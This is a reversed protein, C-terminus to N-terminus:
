DDESAVAALEIGVGDIAGLSDVALNEVADSVLFRTEFQILPLVAYTGLIKREADRYLSDREEPDVTAQAADLLEDVESEDVGIVNEPSTSRFLPSLFQGASPADGVWGLLFLEADGEALFAAYDGRAHPRAVVPVGVDGLQRVIRLVLANNVPNEFYDLPLEPVDGDPFAKEVLSEAVAVDNTCVGSCANDSAGPVGAPILGGLSRVGADAAAAALAGRDVARVIAERFRADDFSFGRLNLALLTEALYPVTGPGRNVVPAQDPDGGIPGSALDINGEEFATTTGETDDFRTIEVSDVAAVGPTHDAFRELTLPTSSEDAVVEPVRFPGSGVPSAAPDAEDVLPAPLVGFAPHALVAPLEAYPLTLAVVVTADDPTSVGSLTTADGSRVANYGAVPLLQIALPSDTWPNVVRDLTAKVDASTVPTGDHFRTGDLLTFTFTTADDNSTWESALEPLPESTAPDLETLTDYVLDAVLVADPAVAQAPDLGGADLVGIRLVSSSVDDSAITESQADNTAGGGSCAVAILGLTVLPATLHTLRSRHRM